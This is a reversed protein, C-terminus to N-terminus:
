ILTPRDHPRRLLIVWCCRKTERTDVNKIKNADSKVDKEYDMKEVGVVRKWLADDDNKDGKDTQHPWTHM